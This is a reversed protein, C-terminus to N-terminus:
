GTEAERATEGKREYLEAVLIKIGIESLQLTDETLATTTLDQEAAGRRLVTLGTSGYEVIQFMHGLCRAQSSADGITVVGAESVAQCGTGRSRSRLTVNLNSSVLSHNFTRGTM